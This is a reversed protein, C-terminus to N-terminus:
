HGYAISKDGRERAHENVNRSTKTLASTVQTGPIPGFPNTPRLVPQNYMVHQPPMMPVGGMQHNMQPPLKESCLHSCAPFSFLILSRFLHPTFLAVHVSVFCYFYVTNIPYILFRQSYSWSLVPLQEKGNWVCASPTDDYSFGSTSSGTCFFLSPRLACYKKITVLLFLNFNVSIRNPCNIELRDFIYRM